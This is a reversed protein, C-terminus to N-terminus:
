NQFNKMINWFEKLKKLKKLIEEKQQKIKMKIEIEKQEKLEEM